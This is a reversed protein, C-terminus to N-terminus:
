ENSEDEAEGGAAEPPPKRQFPAEIKALVRAVKLPDGEEVVRTPSAIWKEFRQMTGQEIRKPTDVPLGLEKRIQDAIEKHTWPYFQYGMIMAYGGLQILAYIWTKPLARVAFVPIVGIHRSLRIKTAFEYVDLYGLTNKVEIGYAIGDREFIFDLNHKTFPWTKGGYSNAEEGLLLFKQRAFAALVLHEGQMGLAGDTAATTYQDVLKFVEDASRKYFRYGRHWVLKITSGTSLPREETHVRGEDVLRRLARNTIWHFYEREFLVELQRSYFVSQPNDELHALLRARAKDEETDAVRKFGRM